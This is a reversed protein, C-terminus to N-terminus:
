KEQALNYMRGKVCVSDFNTRNLGWQYLRIIVSKRGHDDYTIAHYEAVDGPPALPFQAGHERQSMLVLVTNHDFRSKKKRYGSTWVM